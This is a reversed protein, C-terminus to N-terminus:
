RRVDKEELKYVFSTCGKIVEEKFSIYRANEFVKISAKNEKKIILWCTNDTKIYVIRM